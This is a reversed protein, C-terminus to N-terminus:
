IIGREKLLRVANPEGQEFLWGNDVFEKTVKFFTERDDFVRENLVGILYGESDRKIPKSYISTNQNLQELTRYFVAWKKAVRPNQYSIVIKEASTHEKEKEQTMGLKKKWYDITDM